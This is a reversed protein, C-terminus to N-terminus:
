PLKSRKFNAMKANNFIWTSFQIRGPLDEPKLEERRIPWYPNYKLDTAIRLWSSKILMLSIGRASSVPSTNRAGIHKAADRNMM